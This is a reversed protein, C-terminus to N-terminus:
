WVIEGRALISNKTYVAPLTVEPKPNRGLKKVVFMNPMPTIIEGNESVDAEELVAIGMGALKSLLEGKVLIKFQKDEVYQVVSVIKQVWEAFDTDTAIDHGINKPKALKDIQNMLVEVSNKIDNLTKELAKEDIAIVINKNEYRRANDTVHVESKQKKASNGRISSFANQMRSFINSKKKIQVVPVPQIKKEPMQTVVANEFLDCYYSHIRYIQSIAERQASNLNSYLDSNNGIMSILESSIKNIIQNKQNEM